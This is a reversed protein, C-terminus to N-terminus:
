APLSDQRVARRPRLAALNAALENRLRRTAGLLEPHGHGTDHNKVIDHPTLPTIVAFAGSKRTAKFDGRHHMTEIADSPDLREFDLGAMATRTVAASLVPQEVTHGTRTDVADASATILLTDVPLLAFVERAVRLMCSCIHDQYLEHFRAKPMPKVSLKESGTLSKVETPIAHLGATKLGCELVEKDHVTFYLTSGLDSIEGLPSLNALARTYAKPDGALIRQALANLEQWESRQRNHSDLASQFSQEDRQRAKQIEPEANARGEPPLLCANQRARLESHSTRQPPPPPMSASLTPWDWTPGQEKHVSVLLEVRNEYTDVELRAQELASLRAQEKRRLELDRLRTRAERQNRRELVQWSVFPPHRSMPRAVLRPYRVRVVQM